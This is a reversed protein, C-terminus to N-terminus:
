KAFIRDVKQDRLHPELEDETSILIRVPYLEGELDPSYVRGEIDPIQATTFAVVEYQFNNCFYINFNHFERGTAGTILM